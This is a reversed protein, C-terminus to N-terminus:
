FFRTFLQVTEIRPKQVIQRVQQIQQIPNLQIHQPHAAGGPTLQQMLGHQWANPQFNSIASHQINSSIPFSTTNLGAWHQHPAPQNNLPMQLTTYAPLM